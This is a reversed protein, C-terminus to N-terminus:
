TLGPSTSTASLVIRSYSFSLRPILVHHQDLADPNPRPPSLARRGPRFPDGSRFAPAPPRWPWLRVGQVTRSAMTAESIVSSSSLKCYGARRGVGKSGEKEGATRRMLCM